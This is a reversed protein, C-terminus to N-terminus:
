AGDASASIAGSWRFSAGARLSSEGDSRRREYRKGNSSSRKLKAREESLLEDSDFMQAFAAAGVAVGSTANAQESLLRRLEDIEQDKRALEQDTRQVVERISIMESHREDEAPEEECESELRRLILEKREEWSLAEGKVIGSSDARGVECHALQSALDQNQKQLDECLQSSELLQGRLAALEERLELSEAAAAVVDAHPAAEAVSASCAKLEEVVSLLAQFEESLEQVRAEAAARERMEDALKQEVEAFDLKLRQAENKWSATEQSLRGVEREHEALETQLLHLREVLLPDSAAPRKALRQRVKKLMERRQRRTRDRLKRLREIWGRLVLVRDRHLEQAEALRMEALECKRLRTESQGTSEQLRHLQSQQQEIQDRLLSIMADLQNFVRHNLVVDGAHAAALSGNVASASQVSERERGHGQGHTQGGHTQGVASTGATQAHGTSQNTGGSQSSPHHHAPGVSKPPAHGHSAPAVHAAPAVPAAQGASPQRNQRFKAKSRAM